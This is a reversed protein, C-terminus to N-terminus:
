EKSMLVNYADLISDCSSKKTKLKPFVLLLDLDYVLLCFFFSDRQLNFM